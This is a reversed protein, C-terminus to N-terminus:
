RCCGCCCGVLLRPLLLLQWCVEQLLGCSLLWLLQLLVLELLAWWCEAAMLLLLLLGGPLLLLCGSMLVLM